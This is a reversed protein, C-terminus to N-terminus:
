LLWGPDPLGDCEIVWGSPSRLRCSMRPAAPIPAPLKVEVFQSLATAPKRGAGARPCAPPLVGKQVLQRKVTRLMSLSLGHSRYYQPLTMGEEDAEQQRELVRGEGPTLNEHQATM